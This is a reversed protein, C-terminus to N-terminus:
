SYQLIKWSGQKQIAIERDGLQVRLGIWYKHHELNRFESVSEFDKIVASLGGIKKYVRGRRSSGELKTDKLLTKVARMGNLITPGGIIQGRNQRAEM